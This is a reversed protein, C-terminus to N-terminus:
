VETTSLGGTRLGQELGCGGVQIRPGFDLDVALIRLTTREQDDGAFLVVSDRPRDTLGTVFSLLVVRAHRLDCFHRVAAVREHDVAAPPFDGVGREAKDTAKYRRWVILGLSSGSLTRKLRVDAAARPDRVSRPLTTWQATEAHISCRWSM